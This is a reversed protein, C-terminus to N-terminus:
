IYIFDKYVLQYLSFSCLGFTFTHCHNSVSYILISINQYTDPMSFGKSIMSRLVFLVCASEVGSSEMGNWALEKEYLYFVYRICYMYVSIPFPEIHHAM